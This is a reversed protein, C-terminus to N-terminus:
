QWGGGTWTYVQAMGAYTARVAMCQGKTNKLYITENNNLANTTGRPDFILTNSPLEVGDAPATTGTLPPVGTVGTPVGFSVTNPIVIGSIGGSIATVDLRTAAIEGGDAVNNRNIDLFSYYYSSGPVFVVRCPVNNSVAAMRSLSLVSAMRRISSKLRLSPLQDMYVPIAIATLVGVLAMTVLLEM